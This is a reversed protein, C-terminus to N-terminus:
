LNPVKTTTMRMVKRTMKGIKKSMKVQKPLTKKRKKKRKGRKMKRRKRRKKKRRKWKKKKMPRKLITWIKAEVKVVKSMEKETKPTRSKIMKKTRTMMMVWTKAKPNAEPEKAAIATYSAKVQEEEALASKIMDDYEKLNYQVNRAARRRSNGAAPKEEESSGM